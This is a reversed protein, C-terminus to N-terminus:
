RGTIADKMAAIREAWRFGFLRFARVYAPSTAPGAEPRFGAPLLQDFAAFAARRDHASLVRIAMFLYQDATAIAHAHQVPDSDRLHDRMARRLEIYRLWNSREDTRSISGRDRKLVIASPTEDVAIRAGRRMMRFLLEYDQSSRLSEDWGGAALVSERRFLNASTTGLRTRVLGEWADGTWPAELDDARGDPFRKVYAGAVVDAGTSEMLRSQRLLAGPLLQDDADLFRVYSAAVGSLGTNRAAGAGRGGSSLVRLLGAHRAELHRLRELTGDTSGDDVAILEPDIGPQELVSHVAAEVYQAVDRCPIVVAVRM